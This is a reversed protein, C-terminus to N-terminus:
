WSPRMPLLRHPSRRSNSPSMGACWCPRTKASLRSPRVFALQEPGVLMELWRVDEDDAVDLPELDIGARWVVEPLTTLLPAPGTVACHLVVPSHGDAPDIRHISGSMGGLEGGDVGGNGADMGGNGAVEYEYSYRDPYLCLGASAGVELLALPGEIGALLPLLAALRGPENTQTTRASAERKVDDWNEVMWARWADFGEEPAGLLRSAAFVLHPQRKPRELSSLLTLLEVDDAVARAWERYLPSQDRATSAAFRSYWAAIYPVDAVDGAGTM